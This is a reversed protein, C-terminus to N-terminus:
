DVKTYKKELKFMKNRRKGIIEPAHTAFVLQINKNVELVKDIFINQWSLHLSLEPEDVVFIGSSKEKVIFILNAFFTILQKEGSSLHQISIEKNSYKTKFYIQGDNNICLEKGDESNGIFSNMTNLFVELPMRVKAKRQEMKEAVEVAKQIRFIEQFNFALEIPIYDKGNNIFDSFDNIFSKFFNNYSVEESENIINLEKLIKIYSEQVKELKQIDNNRIESLFSEFNYVTNLEIQPKLMSNRFTDNIKNIAINARSYNQYILTEIKLMAGDRSNIDIYIDDALHHNRFRPLYPLLEGTDNYPAYSRNLPLYVYNFTNKIEVLFPYRSFYLSSINNLGKVQHINEELDDVEITYPKEKFKVNLKRHNSSISIEKVGDEGSGNTYKLAVSSFVYNFLKFLQGTIIAETINLITTKGCGNLGYIFTVDSNFDVYYNYCKYLKIVSISILKVKNEGM